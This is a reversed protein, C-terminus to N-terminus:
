NSVEGPVRVKWNGSAKCTEEHTQGKVTRREKVKKLLWSSARRAFWALGDRNKQRYSVWDLQM